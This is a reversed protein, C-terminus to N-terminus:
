RSRENLCLCVNFSGRKYVKIVILIEFVLLDFFHISGKNQDDTCKKVAQTKLEIHNQLDCIVKKLHGVNPVLIKFM